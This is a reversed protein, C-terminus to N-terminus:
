RPPLPGGLSPSVQGSDSSAIPLAQTRVWATPGGPGDWGWNNRAMQASHPWSPTETRLSGTSFTELREGRLNSCRGPALHPLATSLCYPGLLTVGAEQLKGARWRWLRARNWGKEFHPGRVPLRMEQSHTLFAPEQDGGCVERTSFASLQGPPTGTFLSGPSEPARRRQLTGPRNEDQLLGIFGTNDNDEWRVSSSFSAARGTPPPAPM